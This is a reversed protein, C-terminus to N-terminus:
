RFVHELNGTIVVAPSTSIKKDANLINAVCIGDAGNNGTGCLILIKKDTFHEEIYIAVERSANEMLTLSPIGMVDIAYRDAAKAKTGTIM